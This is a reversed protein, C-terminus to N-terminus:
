FIKIIDSTTIIVVLVMLLVFGVAHVTSEVRPSVTKGGRIWELVVFPLRGGDLAPFPLINLIALNLSLVATMFLWGAFGMAITMEAVIKAIGVPGSLQRMPDDAISKGATNKISSVIDSTGKVFMGVADIPNRMEPAEEVRMNTTTFTAGIHWTADRPEFKHPTINIEVPTGDRMLEWDMQNGGSDQVYEAVDIPRKVPKDDIAVIVDGDAAGAYEAPSTMNAVMNMKEDFEINSNGTTMGRIVVGDPSEQITVGAIWRPSQRGFEPVVTTDINNGNRSVTMNLPENGKITLQRYVQRDNEVQRGNVATVVDGNQLGAEHAPANERINTLIVDGVVRDSPFMFLAMLIMIGVLANVAAGSAIVIFKQWPKKSALSYPMNPNTESAMRVFGGLPLWNISYLMDAVLISDEGVDVVRGEHVLFDKYTSAVRLWNGKLHRRKEATEMILATLEGDGDVGSLIKVFQGPQIGTPSTNELFTTTADFRVMTRGTYIGFARPPFGIAFEAVKVGFKRATLFHGLEHVVVLIFLMPLLTAVAILFILM